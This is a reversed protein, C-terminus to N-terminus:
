RKLTAEQFHEQVTQSIKEVSLTNNSELYKRIEQLEKRIYVLEFYIKKLM